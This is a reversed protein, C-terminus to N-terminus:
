PPASQKLLPMLQQNVQAEIEPRGMEQALSKAKAATQQAAASRGDAAYAVALTALLAPDKQDSLACAKQAYIVASRPNRVAPDPATAQILALLNLAPVLDQDQRLAARLYDVADRFAGRKFQIEGIQVLSEVLGPHVRLTEQFYHLAEDLRNQQLYAYSLNGLALLFNPRVRLAEKFHGVAEDIQGKEVLMFGLDNHSAADDPDAVVANKYCNIAREDQGQESYRRALYFYAPGKVPMAPLKEELAAIQAARLQSLIEPEPLLGYDLSNERGYTKLLGIYTEREAPNARKLDVMGPFPSYISLAYRAFDIQAPVSERIKEAQARSEPSLWSRQAVNQLLIQQVTEGQYMLKPAAYELRPRNDTNVPGNGFLLKLDESVILRYFLEPRALDINSSRRAYEINTRAHDWNLGEKNKFGVLLFDRSLGGPECSVLMSAPFVEAFTRGILAFSSWDMQYCHFWQVYIGDATLGRAASQFFDHTFLSAMGAMWPNSPESIIVDYRDRTLGLHAMGDQLILRTKPSTLVGNNWPEFYKAAEFVRDNIDVVDLQQVPYHLTEGATIGSALGLVMVKQHSKAFLMPFHALLTQTKMDGISSADMKGSNAMSLEAKGFPGPYKLVTTFGGIGDGYYLLEGRDTASLIRPGQFLTELWGTSVIMEDVETHEEFRHYKGTALLQRDWSPYAACLVAGAVIAAALAAWAPVKARQRVLVVAGVMVAAALQLAIVLRLGNEKGIFPILAFGACFSGLVAGVTNIAYARGISRGVDIVSRTYIKAVLPFTAGLFFTPAIMFAFLTLAKALSLLAFHDKFTYILKAFFLQSNGLIQSIALALLAAAIQSAVLLGAANASRDALRGFVLNGLALGAIFTVLVITFSYTTPGVILGLLKTWIVEYAMACFGSVFFIVLAGFIIHGHDPPQAQTAIGSRAAIPVPTAKSASKPRTTQAQDGMRLCFLGIACNFAVAVLMTGWVGMQSILWFGCILAGLAAGITNLGYLLGAHSGVHFLQRIYFRCLIPLTAGMCVAPLALLLLAGAFICLNYLLPHALLANYLVTYLAKLLILLVPVVLAYLGITLELLGYARILRPEPIQDAKKGALYSGLGMGGMFVVLITSVAFPAGGIVRTIMRMWIIEYVLATMGSLFFCILIMPALRQDSSTTAASAAAAKSKM